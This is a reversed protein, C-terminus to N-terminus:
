ISFIKPIKFPCGDSMFTLVQSILLYNSLYLLFFFLKTTNYEEIFDTTSTRRVAHDCALFQIYVESNKIKLEEILQLYLRLSKTYSNHGTAVLLNVMCRTTTVHLEWDSTREAYIFQQTIFIWRVYNLWLQATRSKEEYDKQVQRYLVMLKEKLVKDSDELNLNFHFM